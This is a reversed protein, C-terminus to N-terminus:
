EEDTFDANDTTEIASNLTFRRLAFHCILATIGLTLLPLVGARLSSGVGWPRLLHGPVGQYLLNFGKFVLIWGAHLGISFWLAGTRVRAWALILGAVLLTAFDTVFFLPDTFHLLIKGLLDFGAFVDAPNAILAGDPPKLFHLFAFLVSTGVCAAAPRSFRLWLGLLLGRFLWEELLSAAAAPILIKALLTGLEPHHTRPAYAGAAQLVAGLTWLMGGSIVCAILMQSAASRWSIRAGFDVNGVYTVSRLTKIRRFLRPLLLLASVLLCRDFFRSFPARRCTAGLWELLVPLDKADAVSAFHKGAQYVWPVSWAAMVVSCIVWAVAAGVESQFFRKVRATQAGTAAVQRSDSGIIMIGAAM